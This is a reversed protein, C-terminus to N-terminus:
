YFSEASKKLWSVDLNMKNGKVAFSLKKSAKSMGFEPHWTTNELSVLAGSVDLNVIYHDISLIVMENKVEIVDVTPHLHLYGVATDFEGTLRDEFSVRKPTLHWERHHMCNVGQRKFGDHSAKMSVVGDIVPGVVRDKVRARQAVRFGSWVCSSDLGNVSVTNHAATKRQRLREESIGYESIGSNVFVRQGGLSLEFSLTDAHAHGPLYDPGIPSLDAILAYEVTRVNVYGTSQLDFVEIVNPSPLSSSSVDLGLKKAYEFVIANKPSIGFATDNFFSIEGDSHSMVHLWDFMKLAESKARRIIYSDIKNSYVTFVNILDLLDVLMIVHYMPTLEFNGGDSVVQEGLERNYIRLGTELWNNAEKGDLFLGAFILAKANVFLHNGLLHCELDQSLYDAQQALSDLMVQNPPPESLFAKIWNVIRLSTPYPEWGNGEAAPNEQIWKNIFNIQQDVRGAANIASLDDFYHLNYLWLKPQSMDNWDSASHVVGDVNLFRVRNGDFLKQEYLGHCVWAGSALAVRGALENPTPHYFRKYIRYFIQTIKLYKITHYYTLLKMIISCLGFGRIASRILM